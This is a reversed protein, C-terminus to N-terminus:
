SDSPFFRFYKKHFRFKEPIHCEGYPWFISASIVLIGKISRNMWFFYTTVDIPDFTEM